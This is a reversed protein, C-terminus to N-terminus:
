LGKVLRPLVRGAVSGSAVEGAAICGMREYFPVAGPDAEIIIENAALGRATDVAWAFLVKGVGTGIRDTDVFLKELYCGDNDISVQAIGVLGHRDEAAIISGSKLDKETITLEHRCAELFKQDYGWYAKSRLCLQSADAFQDETLSRLSIM